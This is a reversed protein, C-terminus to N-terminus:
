SLSQVRALQWGRGTAKLKALLWLERFPAADSGRQECIVGSFEVSAVYAEHLEEMALLRARLELVETRNPGPGRQQLQSRLDELLPETALTALAPLDAADWAAQMRVFSQRAVVLFAELDAPAHAAPPLVGHAPVMRQHLGKVARLGGRVGSRLGRLPKSLV